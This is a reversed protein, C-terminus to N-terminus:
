QYHKISGGRGSPRYFFMTLAIGPFGPEKYANGLRDETMQSEDFENDETAPTAALKWTQPASGLILPFSPRKLTM